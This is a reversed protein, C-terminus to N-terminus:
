LKQATLVISELKNFEEPINNGHQEVGDLVKDASVNVKENKINKFGTIVLIKHLSNENHIFKHGWDRVFNNIVFVTKTNYNDKKLNEINIFSDIAWDIYEKNTKNEDKYLNFLFDLSPTAIRIKGGKCLVRHVENLMRLQEKYTLHEILHESHIYNFINDPFPFKEKVDLYATQNNYLLDTNLWGKLHNNGCGIQLKKDTNENLYNAILEKNLLDRKKEKKKKIIYDKIDILSTDAINRLFNKM